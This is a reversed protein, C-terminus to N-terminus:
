SPIIGTICAFGGVFSMELTEDVFDASAWKTPTGVVPPYDIGYYDINTLVRVPPGNFGPVPYPFARHGFLITGQPLYPWVEVKIVKGTTPNMFSEVRANATLNSLDNSNAANLVVRTGTANYLLNTITNNDQPSVAMYDYDARAYNFGALTLNAIDTYSLNGNAANPQCVLSTMTQLGLAGNSAAALASSSVGSAKFSASPATNPNGSYVNNGSSFVMALHGNFTLPNGSGDAKVIATNSSPLTVSGTLTLSGLVVTMNGNLNPITQTPLAANPTTFNGAVQKYWTTGADNSVYVNYGSALPETFFTWSISSTSGTTTVSAPARVAPTEGSGAANLATVALLYTGAAITGGSTSAVPTLPTPLAWLYDSYYILWQEEITKLTYLIQSMVVARLDGELGRDRWQATFTVSDMWAISQFVNFKDVASYSTSTQPTGGEALIGPISGTSPSNWGWSSLSKFHHIPAGIGMQRPTSNLCPTLFPVVLQAPARLDYPTFGTGTTTDRTLEAQRARQMLAVTEASINAGQSSVLALDMAPNPAVPISAM